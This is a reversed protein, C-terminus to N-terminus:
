RRYLIDTGMSVLNEAYLWIYYDAMCLCILFDFMYELEKQHESRRLRSETAKIKVHHGLPVQVKHRSRRGFKYKVVTGLQCYFEM